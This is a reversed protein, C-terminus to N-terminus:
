SNCPRWEGSLHHSVIQRVKGHSDALHNAGLAGVVAAPALQLAASALQDRRSLHLRATRRALQGADYKDYKDHKRQVGPKRPILSPAIADCPFGWDRMARHLVYRIFM